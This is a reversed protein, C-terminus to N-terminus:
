SKAITFVRDFPVSFDEGAYAITRKVQFGETVEFVFEAGIEFVVSVFVSVQAIFQVADSLPVTLSPLHEVLKFTSHSTTM